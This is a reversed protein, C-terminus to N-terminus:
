PATRERCANDRGNPTAQIIRLFDVPSKTNLLDFGSRKMLSETQRTLQCVLPSWFVNAVDFVVGLTGAPRVHELFLATGGDKLVRRVECLAQQPDSVSCLVLSSVVTDFFAEPFALGQADMIAPTFGIGLESAKKKARKLMSPSTDIGFIHCRRPYYPLTAGTGVGIELVRGRAHSLLERRHGELAREILTTSWDYVPALWDFHRNSRM